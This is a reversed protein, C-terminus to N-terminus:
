QFRNNKRAEEGDMAELQRIIRALEIQESDALNRGTDVLVFVGTQRTSRLIGIEVRNRTLVWQGAQEATSRAGNCGGNCVCVTLITGGGSAVIRM